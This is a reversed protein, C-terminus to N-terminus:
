WDGPVTEGRDRTLLALVLDIHMTTTALRVSGDAMCVVAGAPHFGYLEKDNICNVPKPGVVASVNNPDCGGVQLRAGPNAWPGRTTNTPQKRGMHFWQNRGACEALLFTNSTGDTVDAFRRRCLAQTGNVVKNHGLLGIFFPDSDKVSSAQNSGVFPNGGSPWNRETTASYDTCGRNQAQARLNKGPASPCLLMPLNMKIPGGPADNNKNSDWNQDYKYQDHLAQQEMYPLIRPMFSHNWVGGAPNPIEDHAAPFVGFSDHHNHLALGLQKLNNTCSMRRASERAAQVAPLLLAVLVGIIAIVVLLEVLTFAVRSRSPRCLM